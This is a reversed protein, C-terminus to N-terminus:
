PLILAPIRIFKLFLTGWVISLLFKTFFKHHTIFRRIQENGSVAACVLFIGASPLIFAIYYSLLMVTSKILLTTNGLLYVMTMTYANGLSILNVLPVTVGWLVAVALVTSAEPRFPKKIPKKKKNKKPKRLSCLSGFFFRITMYFMAIGMLWDLTTRISVLEEIKATLTFLGAWLLFSIGFVTVIYITGFKLFYHGQRGSCFLYALLFILTALVAPTQGDSFGSIATILWPYSAGRERISANATNLVEPHVSFWEDGGVEMTSREALKDLSRHNIEEKILYGNPMFVAPVTGRYKKDIGFKGCFVENTAMGTRTQVDYVTVQLGSYKNQLERIKKQATM